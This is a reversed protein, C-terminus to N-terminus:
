REELMKKKTLIREKEIKKETKEKEFKALIKDM